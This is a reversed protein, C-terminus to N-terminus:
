RVRESACVSVESSRGQKAQSQQRSSPEDLSINSVTIAIFLQMDRLEISRPWRASGWCTTPLLLFCAGCLVVATHLAAAFSSAASLTHLAQCVIMQQYSSEPKFAPLQSSPMCRTHAAAVAAPAAPLPMQVVASICSLNFSKAKVRRRVQGAWRPKFPTRRAELVCVTSGAYACGLVSPV